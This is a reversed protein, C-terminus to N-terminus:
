SGVFSQYVAVRQSDACFDKRQMNNRYTTQMFVTYSTASFSYQM